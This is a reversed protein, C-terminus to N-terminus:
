KRSEALEGLERVLDEAGLWEMGPEGPVPTYLRTRQCSGTGLPKGVAFVVFHAGLQFDTGCTCLMTQTGCTRIRLLASGPGKWRREVKLTAVMEEELHDGVKVEAIELAVVRGAFVAAAERFDATLGESEYCVCAGAPVPRAVLLASLIVYATARGHAM